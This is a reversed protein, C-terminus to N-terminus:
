DQPIREWLWRLDLYVPTGPVELRDTPRWSKERDGAWAFAERKEPDLLWIHEVGMRSFDAARDRLDSFRDDPSLIEIAVLPPEDQTKERIPGRRVIATDPLRFNSSTVRTRVEPLVMISWEDMHQAFWYGIMGQIFAHLRTPMPREKLEGDILEPDHEYSTRLYEEVSILQSTAM